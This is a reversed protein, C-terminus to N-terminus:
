NRENEKAELAKLRMNVKNAWGLLFALCVFAFGLLLPATVIGLLDLWAQLGVLKQINALTLGGYWSASGPDPFARLFYVVQLTGGATFVAGLALLLWFIPQKRLSRSLRHFRTSLGSM